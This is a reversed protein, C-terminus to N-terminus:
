DVPGKGLPVAVHLSERVSLLGSLMAVAVSELSPFVSETTTVRSEGYGM